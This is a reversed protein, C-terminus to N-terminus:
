LVLRLLSGPVCSSPVCAGILLICPSARLGIHASAREEGAPCDCDATAGMAMGLLLLCLWLVSAQMPVSHSPSLSVSPVAPNPPRSSPPVSCSPPSPLWLAVFRFHLPPWRCVCPCAIQARTLRLFTRAARPRSFPSLPAFPRSSHAFHTDNQRTTSQM